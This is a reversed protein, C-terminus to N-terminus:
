PASELKKVQELVLAPDPRDTVLEAYHVWRVKGKADILINGPAAILDGFNDHVLHLKKLVSLDADTAFTVPMDSNKARGAKIKELSETSIAFIEGGNKQM